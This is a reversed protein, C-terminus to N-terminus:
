RFNCVTRLVKNKGRGGGDPTERKKCGKGGMAREPTAKGDGEGGGFRGEGRQQERQEVVNDGGVFSSSSSSPVKSSRNKRRRSRNGHKRGKRSSRTVKSKESENAAIREKVSDDVVVAAGHDDKDNEQRRNARSAVGRLGSDIRALGEIEALGHTTIEVTMTQSKGSWSNVAYLFESSGSNLDILVKDNPSRSNTFSSMRLGIYFSKSHFSLPSSGRAGALEDDIFKGYPHVEFGQDNGDLGAILIRVRSEVWNIWRSVDSQSGARATVKAYLPYSRFFSSPSFLPSWDLGSWRCGILPTASGMADQSTAAGEEHQEEEEEKKEEKEKEKEDGEAVKLLGEVVGAARSMELKIRRLQASGVNYASNMSPYAPTVIPMLHSGDRKNILPNWVSSDSRKWGPPPCNQIPSLMVPNPWKWVSFIVFFERLISSPAANPYRQCVWAVLIALNVGGLFGTVNGYIGKSKAWSKVARLVVRFTEQRRADGSGVCELILSTVRVGNVSRLSVGDLGDFLSTADRSSMDLGALTGLSDGAPTPPLQAYLLDVSLGNVNFKVLPTYAKSIVTLDRVEYSGGLSGSSLGEVLKSFFRDRTVPGVRSNPPPFLCLLDLDSEADHSNLSYSGFPLIVPECRGKGRGFKGSRGCGGGGNGDGDGSDGNCNNGNCNGGGGGGADDGTSGRRCGEGKRPANLNEAREIGVKAANLYASGQGPRAISSARLGGAGGGGGVGGGNNDDDDDDDDDCFLSVVVELLRCVFAPIIECGQPDAVDIGCVGSAGVGSRTEGSGPESEQAAYCHSYGNRKLYASLSESSSIDSAAPGDLSFAKTYRSINSELSCASPESISASSSGGGASPCTEKEKAFEM